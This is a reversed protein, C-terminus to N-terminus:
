MNASTISNTTKDFYFSCKTMARDVHFLHDNGIRITTKPHIINHVIIRRTRSDWFEEEAREISENVRHLEKNTHKLTQILQGIMDAKEKPLNLMLQGLDQDGFADLISSVKAELEKRLALNEKYSRHIMDLVLLTPIGSASGIENAEIRTSSHISGGQIKGEKETCIVDGDSLVECHMLYSKVRVTSGAILCANHAFEAFIHRRANVEGSHNMVIGGGVEVNGGSTIVAGEEISENVLINAHCSVNFGPRVCGTILASGDDVQINGTKYNVDGDIQLCPSVSIHDESYSVVGDITSYLDAGNEVSKVNEGIKIRAESEVEVKVTNGFIDVGDEGQKAKIISGLRQGKLVNWVRGQQRFDISGGPLEMGASDEPKGHLKLFGKEGRTPQIGLAVLVVDKKKENKYLSWLSARLASEFASAPHIGRNEIYQLIFDEEIREQHFDCSYLTIEALMKDDSIKLLPLVQVHGNLCHVMGLTTSKLTQSEEDFTFGKNNEMAIDKPEEDATIPIESSDVNIGPIGPTPPFKKGFLDGPLVPRSIDGLWEFGADTGLQKDVAYAIVLGRPSEGKELSIFLKEAAEPDHNVRVGEKFLLEPLNERTLPRGDGLAQFAEEILVRKSNLDLKVMLVADAHILCAHYSGDEKQYIDLNDPYKTDLLEEARKIAEQPNAAKVTVERMKM